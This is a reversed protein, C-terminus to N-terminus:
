LAIDPYQLENKRRALEHAESITLLLLTEPRQAVWTEGATRSAFFHVFHCFTTMVNEPLTSAGPRLFSMWPDAPDVTEVREPTVTLSVVEHSDPSTSEVFARRGVLQPLFLTDWACWASLYEGGFSIRHTSEYAAPISLGRYGVVYRERDFFTEPWRELTQDITETSAGLPLALDASAVPKGRALQRYLEISVRQEFTNFVPFAAVFTAALESPSQGGLM